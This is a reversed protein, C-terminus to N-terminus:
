QVPLPAQLARPPAARREPQCVDVPQVDRQQRAQLQELAARLVPADPRERSAEAWLSDPDAASLSDRVEAQHLGLIADWRDADRDASADVAVRGPVGM